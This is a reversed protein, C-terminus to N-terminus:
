PIDPQLLEMMDHMNGTGANHVITDLHEGFVEPKSKFWKIFADLSKPDLVNLEHIFLRDKAWPHDKLIDRKSFECSQLTQGTMIINSTIVKHCMKWTLSYGIGRSGGTIMINRPQFGLPNTPHLGLKVREKKLM